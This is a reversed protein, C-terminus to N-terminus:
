KSLVASYIRETEAACRSVTFHATIKQRGRAGMEERLTSSAALRALCAALAGANGPPSLYGNVGDDIVEPIGGASTAAAPLGSAFAELISLPLGESDSSLTFVDLAGLFVPVAPSVPLISVSDGLGSRAARSRLANELEGEGLIALHASPVSSKVLEFAEILLLHNKVPVLRGVTGVIFADRPLGFWKRCEKKSRGPDFDEPAIGNYITVFKGELSPFRMVFSRRTHESVAIIRSARGAQWAYTSRNLFPLSDPLWPRHESRVIPIDMGGLFAASTGWLGAPSGHIHLVDPSLDSIASTVKRVIGPDFGRRKELVAVEVGGRRLDGIMKGGSGLVCIGHVFRERDSNSILSSILHEAGGDFFSYIIHLIRIKLFVKGAGGRITM